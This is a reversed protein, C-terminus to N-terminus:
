QMGGINTLGIPFLSLQVMWVFVNVSFVCCGCEVFAVLFLLQRRGALFHHFAEIADVAALGEFDHASWKQEEKNVARTHYFIPRGGQKLVAGLGKTAMTPTGHISKSIM